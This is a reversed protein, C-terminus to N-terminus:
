NGRTSWDYPWFEGAYPKEFNATDPPHFWYNMAMHGTRGGDAEASGGSAGGGVGGVGGPGEDAAAAGVGSDSARGNSASTSTSTSTSTSASTVEHFWGAPLWLMEGEKLTVETM